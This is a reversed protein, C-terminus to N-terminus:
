KLQQILGAWVEQSKSENLWSCIKEKAQKPEKALITECQDPAAYLSVLLAELNPRSLRYGNKAALKPDPEHPNTFKVSTPMMWHTGMGGRTRFFRPMSLYHLSLSTSVKFDGSDCDQNINKYQQRVDKLLEQYLQNAIPLSGGLATEMGRNNDYDISSASAEAVVIHIDPLCQNPYKKQFVTLGSQISYLLSLIGRNEVAGGDTAYYNSEKIEDNKDSVEKTVVLSNSFVPPFNANLAGATTLPMNGDQIIEYKFFIDEADIDTPYKKITDSTPFAGLETLNTFALRSGGHVTYFHPNDNEHNKYLVRLERSYDYSHAVLASNLVLGFTDLDGFVQDVSSESRFNRALSEALLTGNSVGGAIRWEATGQIVDKIFPRSIKEFYCQWHQERNRDFQYFPDGFTYPCIFSSQNKAKELVPKKLLSAHHYAFYALSVGGGSVGSGMVVNDIHDLKYLGYLVSATYLAARTGGGSSAILIAPQKNNAQQFLKDSLSFNVTNKETFDATWVPKQDSSYNALWFFTLVALVLLINLTSFYIHILRSFHRYIARARVRNDANGQGSPSDLLCSFLTERDYSEYGYGGEPDNEIKGTVLFRDIGHFQLYRNNEEIRIDDRKANSDIDYRIRGYDCDAGFIPLLAENFSRNAWYEYSLCYFYLAVFYPIVTLPTGDMVTTIYGVDMLRAIALAIVLISVVFMGGRMSVATILQLMNNWRSHLSGWFSLLFAFLLAAGLLWYSMGSGVDSMFLILLSPLLLLHFPYHTVAALAAYFAKSHLLKPVKPKKFLETHILAEQFFPKNDRIFQRLVLAAFPKALWAFLLLILGFVFFGHYYITNDAETANKDAFTVIFLAIIGLLSLHYLRVNDGKSSLRPLFIIAIMLALFFALMLMNKWGFPSVQTDYLSPFYAMIADWTPGYLSTYATVAMLILVSAGHGSVHWFKGNPYYANNLM